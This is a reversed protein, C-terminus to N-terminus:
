TQFQINRYITLYLDEGNKPRVLKDGDTSGPEGRLVDDGYLELGYRGSGIPDDAVSSFGLIHSAIRNLPYFRTWSQEVYVGHLNQEELFTIQEETPRKAIPEFPVNERALVEVLEDESRNSITSLISAVRSGDKDTFYISGRKPTLIGALEHQSAARARYLEGKKVQINWMNLGLLSYLLAFGVTVVTIRIGM